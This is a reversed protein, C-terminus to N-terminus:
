GAADPDPRPTFRGYATLAAAAIALTAAAGVVNLGSQLEIMTPPELVFAVASLGGLLLRLPLAVALLTWFTRPRDGDLWASVPVWLAFGSGAAAILVWSFDYTSALHALGLAIPLVTL